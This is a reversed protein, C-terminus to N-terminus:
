SGSGPASITTQQWADFVQALQQIPSFFLDIYLVFAILAGNTLRDDRIMGAGVGLVIVGAVGALFQSFPFYMASLRQAGSRSELYERNLQQFSHVTTETHGFAQAERVGSLREQFGANVMSILDRAENYVVNARRRFLM